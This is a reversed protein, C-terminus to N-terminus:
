TDICISGSSSMRVDVRAIRPESNNRLAGADAEHRAALGSTATAARVGRAPTVMCGFGKLTDDWLYERRGEAPRAIGEVERKTIRGTAMEQEFIGPYARHLLACGPYARHLLACLPM